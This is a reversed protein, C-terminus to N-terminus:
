WAFESIPEASWYRWCWCPPRGDPRAKWIRTPAAIVRRLTGLHFPYLMQGWFGEPFDPDGIGFQEPLKGRRCTSPAALDPRSDPFTSAFNKDLGAEQTTHHWRHFVPSALVYRFPGFTWNLNAHVMASYIINFPALSGLADGASLGDALVVIDAVAFELLNNVPHFRATSTWDLVKTSHHIAHFRWALRTHFFRHIAFLIVDQILLIAVCQLWLPWDKVPLPRRCRAASRLLLLAGALMMPRALGLLLPVVFWYMFDTVTGRISKWWYMGPNCPMLRALIGFALALGAFWKLTVLWSAEVFTIWDM